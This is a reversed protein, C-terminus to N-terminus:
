KNYVVRHDIRLRRLTRMTLRAGRHAAEIVNDPVFRGTEEGRSKCREVCQGIPAMVIVVEVDYGEAELGKILKLAKVSSKLTGDLVFDKKSQITDELLKDAIEASKQYFMAAADKSGKRVEEQYEPLSELIDDSNIRIYSDDVAMSNLATSKGAGSGGGLIIAKPM